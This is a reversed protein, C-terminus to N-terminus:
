AIAVPLKNSHNKHSTNESYNELFATDCIQEVVCGM